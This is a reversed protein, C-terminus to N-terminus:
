VTSPKHAAAFGNNLPNVPQVERGYPVSPGEARIRERATLVDLKPGADSAEMLYPDTVQAEARLAQKRQAEADDKQEFVVADAIRGSWGGGATVYAPAGDATFNATVIWKLQPKLM